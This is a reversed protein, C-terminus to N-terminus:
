RAAAQETSAHQRVLSGSTFSLLVPEGIDTGTGCVHCMVLALCAPPAVRMVQLLNLVYVRAQPSQPLCVAHVAVLCLNHLM